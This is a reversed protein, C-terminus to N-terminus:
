GVVQSQRFEGAPTKIEVMHDTGRHHHGAMRWGPSHGFIRQLKNAVVSHHVMRVHHPRSVVSALPCFRGHIYIDAFVAQFTTLGFHALRYHGAKQRNQLSRRTKLSVPNYVAGVTVNRRYANEVRLRIRIRRRLSGKCPDVCMDPFEHHQRRVCHETTLCMLQASRPANTFREVTAVSTAAATSSHM